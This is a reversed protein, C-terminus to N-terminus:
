ANLDRLLLALGECSLAHADLARLPPIRITRALLAIDPADAHLRALSDIQMGSWESVAVISMRDILRRVEMRRFILARMRLVQMAVDVPVADLSSWQPGVLGSLTVSEVELLRLLTLSVAAIPGDGRM